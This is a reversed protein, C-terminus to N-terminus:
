KAIYTKTKNNETLIQCKVTRQATVNGASVTLSNSKQQQCHMHFYFSYQKISFLGVVSHPM